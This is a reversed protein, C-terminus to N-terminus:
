TFALALQPIPELPAAPTCDATSPAHKPHSPHATSLTRTFLREDYWDRLQQEFTADRAAAQRLRYVFADSLVGNEFLKDTARESLSSDEGRLDGLRNLHDMCGRRLGERLFEIGADHWADSSWPARCLADHRREMVLADARLQRGAAALARELEADMLASPSPTTSATSM